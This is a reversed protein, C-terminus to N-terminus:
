GCFDPIEYDTRENTRNWRENIILQIDDQLDHKIVLDGDKEWSVEVFGHPTKVRGAASELYGPVPNIEVARYGPALPRVGLTVSPLEYLALAGWGHCESRAYAEAEICTTAHKQIMDRWIDWCRDTYEYLDAKELARFLYYQMAVTCQAYAGRDELTELLNQRGKEADVTGTLLAFVQCHQSYEEQGPGDQIMGNCGMCFSRIANQVRGARAQYEKEIETRGIYEALKAAHQLGMIYLLSEMTIPGSLGVTPMGVTANWEEAWDIFSWFPAELNVGGIKAVYGEEALNREFFDLVGEVTPMHYRILAQDGFYMMHDYLMLIYYISFGPIVNPNCNPYCCNMLGDYRQSRRFDDMCKRALRDDAAVAYTCLIQLRSDMAYQLQEYFPCDEYTEHMCRRLTRESIAWIDSLSEDSTEVKTEVELPYGTEEYEFAHITLPDSGTTIKLQIFRFTRFWFPEYIEYDEETGIGAVHYIDKYGDLYGNVKDERDLKLPIQNAGVRESQVYAESELIQVRAGKGGRLFLKLYGTMEEGADIEVIEESHAAIMLESDGYLMGTWEAESSASRKMDMVKAFKRRVRYLFPITRPCMNGPSVAGHVDLYRYPKVPKWDADRYSEQMWGFTERNGYVEEHIMLPAFGEEERVIHFQRDVYCRWSPDTSLSLPKGKADRCEGKVYLAPVSTRFIAHNGKAKDEPYRLVIVAIVNTGPHLYDTLDIRDYFWIQSDGKSPGIEVLQGNVYLKYRSDATIDIIAKDPVDSLRVEKRFYVVRAEDRDQLDWQPSWVWNSDKLFDM